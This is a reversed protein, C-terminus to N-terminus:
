PQGPVPENDHVVLIKNLTEVHSERVNLHIRKVLHWQSNWGLKAQLEVLYTQATFQFESDVRQFECILDITKGGQVAFPTAFKRGKDTGLEDMTANFFLPAQEGGYDPLVLRLNQLIVPQAGPNFFVFPFEILLKRLSSNAAYTRVDGVLLSGPRWNMWWFSFITFALALLSIFIAANDM